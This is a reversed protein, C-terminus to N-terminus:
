LDLTSEETSHVFPTNNVMSVTIVMGEATVSMPVLQHGPWSSQDTECQQPTCGDASTHLEPQGGHRKTPQERRQACSSLEGEKTGSRACTHNTNHGLRVIDCCWLVVHELGKAYTLAASDPLTSCSQSMHQGPLRGVLM